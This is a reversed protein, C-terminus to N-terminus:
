LKENGEKLRFGERLLVEMRSLSSKGVEIDAGLARVVTGLEQSATAMTSQASRIEELLDHAATLFQAQDNILTDDSVQFHPVLVTATLHEVSSVFGSQNDLLRLYFYGFFLYAVIATMTTSLATSMGHVVTGIGGVSSDAGLLDSAGLLSISLSVITGFVGLLILINNVFKPFSLMSSESAVLTAALASHNIPARRSHMESLTDFREGIISDRAVGQLAPNNLRWNEYFQELAEEEKSYRWLLQLLHIVGLIFIFLIAGNIVWGVSTVQNEFYISILLKRQWIVVALVFIAVVLMQILTRRALAPRTLQNSM